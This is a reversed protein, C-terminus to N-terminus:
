IRKKRGGLVSNLLECTALMQSQTQKNIIKDSRDKTLLSDLSPMKKTRILNATVWSQTIIDNHKDRQKKQYGKIMIAFEAATLEWFENPNLELEGLAFEM